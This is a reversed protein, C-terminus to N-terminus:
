DPNIITPPRRPPDITHAKTQEIALVINLVASVVSIVLAGWFSAWFGAVNFGKVLAATLQLLLANIVLMFFGLSVVILPLSLFYLLPRIIANLLTLVLVAALGAGLSNSEIGPVVTVALFVAIGTVLVRMVVPRLGDGGTQHVHQLHFVRM